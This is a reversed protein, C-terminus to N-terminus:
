KSIFYWIDQFTRFILYFQYKFYINLTIFSLQLPQSFVSPNEKKMMNIGTNFGAAQVFSNLALNEEAKPGQSFHRLSSCM